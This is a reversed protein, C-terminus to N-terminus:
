NGREWASREDDYVLRSLITMEGYGSSYGGRVYAPILGGPTLLPPHKRRFQAALRFRWRASRKPPRIGAKYILYM